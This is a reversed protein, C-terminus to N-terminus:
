ILKHSMILCQNSFYRCISPFIVVKVHQKGRRLFLCSVNLTSSKQGIKEIWRLRLRMSKEQQDFGNEHLTESASTEVIRRDAAKLKFHLVAQFM